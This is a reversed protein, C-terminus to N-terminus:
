SCFYHDARSNHNRDLDEFDKLTNMTTLTLVSNNSDEDLVKPKLIYNVLEFLSLSM